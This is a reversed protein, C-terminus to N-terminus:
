LILKLNDLVKGARSQLRCTESTNFFGSGIQVIREDNNAFFVTWNYSTSPPLGAIVGSLLSTNNVLGDTATDNIDIPILKHISKVITENSM